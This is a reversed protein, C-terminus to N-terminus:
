EKFTLKSIRGRGAAYAISDNLFRITFYSEDSIKKWHEGGDKSVSIGRFGVAVIEKGEKNPIYQVCSRYDPQEGEAALKWTKGGDITKITNSNYNEPKTYDGGIAYGINENYFDISYMGTTAEGQIIPTESVEWTNGKDSSYFVRSSLGGTAIWIKDGIIAINTNSAAFAAEGENLQPLRDCPLKNWTVGGDRTIIISLCGDTPDGMAIGENDNWFSMADYFVNDHDERYVLEMGGSNRTKYLLAPNGVSLMFFDSANHAVARFELRLSDQQQKAINWKKNRVNYLGFTNNNAAFALSGDNLLEIARISLTSDTHIDEIEVRNFDHIVIAKEKAVEKKCSTIIILLLLSLIHRM